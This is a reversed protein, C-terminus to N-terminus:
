SLNTMPQMEADLNPILSGLYNIMDIKRRLEAVNTPVQLETIAKVKEPDPTVGDASLVHGFYTLKDKRFEFKEKNLKM